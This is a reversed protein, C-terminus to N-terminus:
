FLVLYDTKKALNWKINAVNQSGNERLMEKHHEFCFMENMMLYFIHWYPLYKLMKCNFCITSFPNESFTLEVSFCLLKKSNAPLVVLWMPFRSHWGPNSDSSVTDNRKATIALFGKVLNFRFIMNSNRSPYVPM